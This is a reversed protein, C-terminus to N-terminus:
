KKGELRAKIQDNTLGDQIMKDIARDLDGRTMNTLDFTTEETTPTNPDAATTSTNTSLDGQRIKIYENFFRNLEDLKKYISESTDFKNPTLPELRAKENATVATGSRLHFLASNLSSIAARLRVGEPDLRSNIVEPGIFKLGVSNPNLQLLRSIEASSSQLDRAMNIERQIASSIRAGSSEARIAALERQLAANQEWLQLEFQKEFQPGLLPSQLISATVNPDDSGAIFASVFDRINGDVNEGAQAASFMQQAYMGATQATALNGSHATEELEAQRQLSQQQMQTPLGYSQLMVDKIQDPVGSAGLIENFAEVSFEAKQRDAIAQSEAARIVDDKTNREVIQETSEPTRMILDAVPGFGMQELSGPSRSELDAFEQILEPKQALMNRLAKQTRRDTKAFLGITDDLKDLGPKILQDIGPLVTVLFM